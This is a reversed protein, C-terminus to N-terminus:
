GKDDLEVDALEALARRAWRALGQYSEMGLELALRGTPLVGPPLRSDLMTGHHAELGLLLADIGDAVERLFRCIISRDVLQGMFSFRLILEESRWVLDEHTVAQSAWAELEELGSPTLSYVRRPRMSGAREVTGALLERNELRKLAPYIAGPSSSYHGMPTTEFIKCLDYGARPEQQILGLLALELNTLPRPTKM